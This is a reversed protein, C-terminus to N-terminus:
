IRAEEPSEEQFPISVEILKADLLLEFDTRNFGITELTEASDRSQIKRLNLEGMWRRRNLLKSTWEIAATRLTNRDYTIQVVAGAESRLTIQRSEFGAGTM